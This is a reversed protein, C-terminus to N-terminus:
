RFRSKMNRQIACAMECIACFAMLKPSSTRTWTRVLEVVWMATATREKMRGPTM